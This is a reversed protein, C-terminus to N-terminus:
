GNRGLYLDDDMRAHMASQTKRSVMNQRVTDVVAYKKGLERMAQVNVGLSGLLAVLAVDNEQELSEVSLLDRGEPTLLSLHSLLSAINRLLSHSPQPKSEPNDTNDESSMNNGDDTPPLNSLYSRILHIRSELAKVANLRTTLGAILDEDEASLTTAGNSLQEEEGEAPGDKSDKKSKKQTKQTPQSVQPDQVSTANGGGRAVFDVSIMEAEGTEISYPLERFKISLSPEQGDIQMSKDGDGAKEGEYVSEYITLPLKGRTSSTEVMSSPHFALLLATENYDRLLQHHIPLQAPEPGSPPIVTFWGFLDLAPIKHVDKFEKLRQEFWTHHLVVDGNEETALHCEFAHELSIDRGQQQGLLAGVIPGEQQRAAHRTIHDSITLLVLPHLNVHLGSDSSKLSVLPNTQEEM